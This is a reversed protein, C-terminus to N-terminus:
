TPPSERRGRDAPLPLRRLARIRSCRVYSHNKALAASRPARAAPVFRCGSPPALPSPLEGQLSAPTRMTASPDAVPIASLLAATYPHAPRTYLEDPVRGRVAQRPVHRRHPREREERRRPRPRHVRAHARLATEHRRAPQPDAGAGVRRTRVRARRLHDGETRARTSSRHLHAPVSRRLVPPVSTAPHRTTSASPKSCRTSPRRGRSPRAGSGCKSRSAWSTASAAGPTSRRSRTRFILQLQPRM